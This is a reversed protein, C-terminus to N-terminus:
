IKLEWCNEFHKKKLDYKTYARTDVSAGQRQRSLKSVGFEVQAPKPKESM